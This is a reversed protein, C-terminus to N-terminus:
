RDAGNDGTPSSAATADAPQPIDAARRRSAPVNAGGASRSQLHREFETQIRKIEEDSCAELNILTDRAEKTSRILEDLKLQIAKGDRNQSHQLVFVALFTLVTTATNVVLQWTDSYGTWPGAAAWVVISATALVFITGSGMAIACAGAFDSFRQSWSKSDEKM